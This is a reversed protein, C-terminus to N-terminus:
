CIVKLSKPKIEVHLTNSGLAVPEGDLQVSSQEHTIIFNSGILEKCYNSSIQKGNFMKWVILPIALIAPKKLIMVNLLGDDSKANPAIQFHNGYQSSNAFAIIFAKDKINEIGSTLSFDFEKYKFFETVVLRVYSWLGRRKTKDFLSAIHGDFGIGAVNVSKKQNIQVTDVLKTTGSKLQNLARTTNSSIGLHNSFGNGSGQPIIGMPTSTNVLASAIEHVTGDGGVAVIIDFNHKNQTAIDTAHGKHTTSIVKAKPFNNKKSNFVTLFNNRKGGSIPNHIFLISKDM